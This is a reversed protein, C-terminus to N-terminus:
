QYYGDNQYQNISQLKNYDGHSSKSMQVDSPPYGGTGDNNRKKKGSIKSVKVKEDGM